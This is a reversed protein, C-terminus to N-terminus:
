YINGQIHEQIYPLWVAPVDPFLSGISGVIFLMGLHGTDRLSIERMFSSTLVAFVGVLSICFVFFMLHFIPYPM